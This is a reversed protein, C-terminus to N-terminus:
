KILKSLAKFDDTGAHQLWEFVVMETTVPVVGAHAMRSLAIDVSGKKRASVGDAVVFVDFGRDKLDLATQLVCVHAEIGLLVLQPRGKSRQDLLPKELNPERLCSFALKEITKANGAAATVEAVTPGIGKPYQESITVPVKLRAAAQLLIQASKVVAAPDAMVPLLREQIDVVLLQSKGASMLM